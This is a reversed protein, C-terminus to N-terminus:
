VRERCSARGIEFKDAMVKNTANIFDKFGSGTKSNVSIIECDDSLYHKKWLNTIQPDSLDFKNLVIVQRKDKFLEKFDPNRSSFPIRADLIEVVVDVLKLNDIIMKKAKKMHGPYWNINM